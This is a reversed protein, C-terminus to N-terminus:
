PLYIMGLKEAVARDFPLLTADNFFAGEFVVEIHDPRLFRGGVFADSLDAGRLDAGSFNSGILQARSLKAGRFDAAAFNGELMKVGRLDASRFSAARAEVGRLISGRFDSHDFTVGSLGTGEFRANRLRSYSIFNSALREGSNLSVGSLDMVALVREASEQAGQKQAEFEARLQSIASNEEEAMLRIGTKTSRGKVMALKGRSLEPLIEALPATDRTARAYIALDSQLSSLRAELEQAVGRMEPASLARFFVVADDASTLPRGLVREMLAVGETTETLAIRSVPMDLLRLLEVTNAQSSFSGGFFLLLAAGAVSWSLSASGQVNGM